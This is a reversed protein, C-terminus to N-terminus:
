ILPTHALFIVECDLGDHVRAIMLKKLEFM